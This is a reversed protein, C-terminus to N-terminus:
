QGGDPGASPNELADFLTPETKLPTSIRSQIQTESLPM